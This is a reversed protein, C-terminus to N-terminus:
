AVQLFKRQQFELFNIIGVSSAINVLEDIVHGSLQVNLITINEDVEHIFAQVRIIVELIPMDSLYSHKLDVTSLM